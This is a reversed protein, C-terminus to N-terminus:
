SCRPLFFISLLLKKSSSSTSVILMRLQLLFFGNNRKPILLNYNIFLFFIITSFDNMLFSFSSAYSSLPWLIDNVNHVNCESFCANINLLSVDKKERLNEDISCLESFSVSCSYVSSSM